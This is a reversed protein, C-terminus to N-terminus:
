VCPLFKYTHTCVKDKSLPQLEKADVANRAWWEFEPNKKQGRGEEDDGDDEAADDGDPDPMEDKRRSTRRGSKQAAPGPAPQSPRGQRERPHVAAAAIEM